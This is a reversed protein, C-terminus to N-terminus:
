SDEGRFHPLTVVFSAGRAGDNHRLQLNGGQQEALRRALYLGLGSGPSTRSRVGRQFLSDRMAAPIGPGADSVRLEVVDDRRGVTLTVASGPAHRLSNHLLIHVIESIDDQRGRVHHGTAEWRIEHGAVRQTAVLPTIVQDLSVASTELPGPNSLLRQLRAVESALGLELRHRSSPSLRDDSGLLIQSATSIDAVTSRLEHFLEEQHRQDESVVPQAPGQEALARLLITATTLALQVSLGMLVVVATWSRLTGGTTGVSGLLLSTVVAAEIVVLSRTSVEPRPRRSRHWAGLVVVLGAGLIVAAVAAAPQPLAVLPEDVLWTYLLRGALLVLGATIGLGLPHLREPLEAGRTALVLGAIVPTALLAGMLDGTSGSREAVNTMDVIAFAVGSLFLTVLVSSLWGSTPDGTMRWRSYLLFAGAALVLHFDLTAVAGATLLRPQGETVLAVALIPPLALLLATTISRRWEWGFQTRPRDHFREM